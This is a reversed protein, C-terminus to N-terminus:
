TPPDATRAEISRSTNFDNKEGRYHRIRGIEALDAV